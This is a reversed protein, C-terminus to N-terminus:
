GPNHKYIQNWVYSYIYNIPQPLKYLIAKKINCIGWRLRSLLEKMNLRSSYQPFLCQETLTDDNKM